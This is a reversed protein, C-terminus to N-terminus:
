GFCRDPIVPSGVCNTPRNGTVASDRSITVDDNNTYIGGPPRNSFNYAVKSRELRVQGDVNYLGGAVSNLAVARNAVIESDRLVVTAGFVSLGGGYQEAVNEKITSQEIVATSDAAVALGGSSDDAANRAVLVKELALQSESYAALGGGDNGAHNDVVESQSLTSTGGYDLLGGGWSLARNRNITSKWVWVTGGSLADTMAPAGNGIGGGNNAGNATIKSNEVRLVGVNFVGGGTGASNSAEVLSDALRTTGYNAIAGGNGGANHLIFRSHELDAQGGRDVLLGAGDGPGPQVLPAVEAVTKAAKPKAAKPKAAKAEPKAPKAAAAKTPKAATTEPKAAKPKAAKPNAAKPQAKTTAQGTPSLAPAPPMAPLTAPPGGVLDPVTQGGKITVNKLTLHGDRAVALIRFPDANAARAITTDHGRLAIAQRIVPLGNGGDSRTLEYTCNRALDLAGGHNANAYTIAQILKDTDCPVQRASEKGGREDRAGSWEGGRDGADEGGKDAPAGGDQRPAAAPQTDSTREQGGSKQDRSAVGGLAALGVVGTLGAVGAAVWLKRRRRREPPVPPPGGYSTTVDNSM